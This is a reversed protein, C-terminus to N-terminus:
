KRYIEGREYVPELLTLDGEYLHYGDPFPPRAELGIACLVKDDQYYCQIVHTGLKSFFQQLTGRLNKVFKIQDLIQLASFEEGYRSKSERVLAILGDQAWSVLQKNRLYSIFDIDAAGPIKLDNNAPIMLKLLSILTKETDKM